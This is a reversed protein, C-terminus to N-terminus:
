LFSGALRLASLKIANERSPVFGTRNRRPAPHSRLAIVFRDSPSVPKVKASGEANPNGLLGNISLYAPREVLWFPNQLLLGSVERRALRFVTTILHVVVILLDRM